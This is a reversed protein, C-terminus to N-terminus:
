KDGINNNTKKKKRRTQSKMERVTISEMVYEILRYPLFIYSTKYYLM